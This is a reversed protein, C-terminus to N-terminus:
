AGQFVPNDIAKFCFFLPLPHKRKKYYSVENNMM